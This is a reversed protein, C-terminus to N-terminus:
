RQQLPELRPQHYLDVQTNLSLSFLRGERVGHEQGARIGVPALTFPQLILALIRTAKYCRGQSSHLTVISHMLASRKVPRRTAKEYLPRLTKQLLHATYRGM